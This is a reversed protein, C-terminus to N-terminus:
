KYRPLNRLIGLIEEVEDDNIKVASHDRIINRWDDDSILPDLWGELTLDICFDGNVM